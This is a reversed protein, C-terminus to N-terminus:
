GSHREAGAGDEGQAGQQRLDAQKRLWTVDAQLADISQQLKQILAVVQADSHLPQSLPM